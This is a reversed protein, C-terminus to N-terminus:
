RPRRGDLIERLKKATRFFPTYKEPVTIAEGTRPNRGIRAGRKRPEFTGFGRLEVRAGRELTQILTEFFVSTVREVEDSSLHPNERELTEILESKLM